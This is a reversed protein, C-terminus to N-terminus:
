RRRLQELATRAMQGELRNPHKEAIRVYTEVAKGRQNGADYVQALGLLAQAHDPSLELAKQYAEEAEAVLRERESSSGTARARERLARGLDIWNLPNESHLEAAERYAEAAPGFRHARAEAAGTARLVQALAPNLVDLHGAHQERAERLMEAAEATSGAAVLENAEVIVTTIEEPIQRVVASTVDPEAFLGKVFGTAASVGIAGAGVVMLAVAGLAGTFVLPRLLRAGLGPSWAESSGKRAPSYAAARRRRPPLPEEPIDEPEAQERAAAAEPRLPMRRVRGASQEVARIQEEVAEAFCEKITRNFPALQLARRYCVVARSWEGAEEATEAERCWSEADRPTKRGAGPDPDDDETTPDWLLKLLNM